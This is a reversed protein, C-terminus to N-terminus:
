RYFLYICHRLLNTEWIQVTTIELPLCWSKRHCQDTSQLLPQHGQNSGEIVEPPKLFSKFVHICQADAGLTSVSLWAWASTVNKYNHSFEYIWCMSMFITKKLAVYFYNTISSIRYISPLEYYQYNWTNNVKKHIHALHM